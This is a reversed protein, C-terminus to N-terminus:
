ARRQHLRERALFLYVNRRSRVYEERHESQLMEDETCGLMRHDKLQIKGIARIGAHKMIARHENSGIQKTMRAFMGPVGKTYDVREGLNDGIPNGQPAPTTDNASMRNAPAANNSALQPTASSNPPLTDSRHLQSKNM